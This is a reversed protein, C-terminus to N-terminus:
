HEKHTPRQPAPFLFLSVIFNVTSFLDCDRIVNNKDVQREPWEFTKKTRKKVLCKTKVPLIHDTTKNADSAHQCCRVSCKIAPRQSDGSITKERGRM